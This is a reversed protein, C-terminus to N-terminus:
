AGDIAPDVASPNSIPRGDKRALQQVDGFPVKDKTAIAM